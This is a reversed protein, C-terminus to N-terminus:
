YAGERKLVVGITRLLIMIDLWLSWNQVYWVDTQVRFDYDTDSRGSVQWLGTIGPLVSYYYQKFERYYNSIEEQIVPRPGVLSMDGKIVNIVQPLEDISTKRLIKGIFTVRPDNKLKFNKEWEEKAEPNEKLLKDLREKSDKYMTRFKYVKIEKGNKGIRKHLFFIPGPSTLKILIGIIIFFPLICILGFISVTLDFTRKIIRNTLSNLNNNIKIMFLKEMFLYHLESNFLAIGKIDPIVIVRRVVKYIENVLRTLEEPLMNEIAIFVTDIKMINLFKDIADDKKYTKFKRGVIEVQKKNAQKETLIGVIDYGLHNENILGKITLNVKEGDGIIIIKEKWIGINFLFKKGWYRVLPLLVFLFGLQWIFVSRPIELYMNRILVTLLVFGIGLLSSKLLLKTEEWFPVRIQYLKNVFLAIIFVIPVWWISVIYGLQFLFPRLNEGFIHKFNFFFKFNIAFFLAGIISIYFVLLDLLMLSFMQLIYKVRFRM